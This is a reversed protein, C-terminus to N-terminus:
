RKRVSYVLIGAWYVALVAFVAFIILAIVSPATAVAFISGAAFATCWLPDYKGPHCPFAPEKKKAPLKEQLAPLDKVLLKLGDETEAKMMATMRADYELQSIFGRALMEGLHDLYKNRTEDGTRQASILHVGSAPEEKKAPPPVAALIKMGPIERGNFLVPIGSSSAAAQDLMKLDKGSLSVHLVPPEPPKLAMKEGPYTAATGPNYWLPSDDQMGLRSQRLIQSQWYKLYNEVTAAARPDGREALTCLQQWDGFDAVPFSGDAVGPM